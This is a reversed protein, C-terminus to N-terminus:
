GPTPLLIGRRELLSGDMRYLSILAKRYDVIANLHVIQSALLDRQAQAVLLGTSKGVRFKEQEVRVVEEQLAVTAASADIQQEARGVEVYAKQVDLEM